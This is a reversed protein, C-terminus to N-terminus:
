QERARRVGAFSRVCLNVYILLMVAMVIEATMALYDPLIGAARTAGYGRIAEAAAWVVGVTAIVASFQTFLKRKQERKIGMYGLVGLALGFMMPMLLMSNSRGTGVFAVLGLAIMLIALILTIKTM